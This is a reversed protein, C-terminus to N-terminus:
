AAYEALLDPQFGSWVVAEDLPVGPLAVSIVPAQRIGLANIAALNGPETADLEEYKVGATKLWRKTADCQVCNDKSYVTIIPRSM